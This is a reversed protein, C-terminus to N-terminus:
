LGSRNGLFEVRHVDAKLKPVKSMFKAGSVPAGRMDSVSVVKSKEKKGKGKDQGEVESIYTLNSRLNRRKTKM